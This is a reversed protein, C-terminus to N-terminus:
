QIDNEERKGDGGGAEAMYARFCYGWRKRYSYRKARLISFWLSVWMSFNFFLNFIADHRKRQKEAEEEGRRARERDVCWLCFGGKNLWGERVHGCPMYELKRRLIKVEEELTM